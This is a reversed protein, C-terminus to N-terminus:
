VVLYAPQRECRGPAREARQVTRESVGRGGHLVELRWLLQGSVGTLALAQRGDTLVPEAPQTLLAVCTLEQMLVVKPAHGVTPPVGFVAVTGSAVLAQVRMGLLPPHLTWVVVSPEALETRRTEM